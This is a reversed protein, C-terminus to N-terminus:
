PGAAAGDLQLLRLMLLLYAISSLAVSLTTALTILALSNNSFFSEPSSLAAESITVDANTSLLGGMSAVTLLVFLYLFGGLSAHLPSGHRASREAFFLGMTFVLGVFVLASQLLVGFFQLLTGAPVDVHWGVLMYALVLTPAASGIDNNIVDTIYRAYILEAIVAVFVVTAVVVLAANKVLLGLELTLGAPILAWPIVERSPKGGRVLTWCVFTSLLDIFIGVLAITRSSPMTLEVLPADAEQGFYAALTLTPAM